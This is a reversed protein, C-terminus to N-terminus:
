CISIGEGSVKGPEVLTVDRDAGAGGMASGASAGPSKGGGQGCYSSANGPFFANSGVQFDQTAATAAWPSPGGGRNLRGAARPHLPNAKRDPHTFMM